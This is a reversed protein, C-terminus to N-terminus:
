IANEFIFKCKSVVDQLHFVNIMFQRLSVEFDSGMVMSHFPFLIAFCFKEVIAREHWQLHIASKVPSDM